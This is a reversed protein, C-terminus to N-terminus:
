RSHGVPSSCARKLSRRAKPAPEAGRPRSARSGVRLDGRQNEETGVEANDLGPLAAAEEFCFVYTLASNRPLKEKASGFRASYEPLLAGEGEISGVGESAKAM